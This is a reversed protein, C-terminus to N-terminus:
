KSGGGGGGGGGEGNGRVRMALEKRVAEGIKSGQALASMSNDMDNASNRSASQTPQSPFTTSSSLARLGTTSTVVSHLLRCQHVGSCVAAATRAAAHTIAATPPM